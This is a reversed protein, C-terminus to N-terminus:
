TTQHPLKKLLFLLAYMGILLCGYNLIQFVSYVNHYSSSSVVNYRVNQYLKELMDWKLLGIMCVTLVWNVSMKKFLFLFPIILVAINRFAELKNTSMLKLLGKFTISVGFMEAMQYLQYYNYCQYMVFFILTTNVTALFSKSYKKTNNKGLLILLLLLLALYSYAIDVFPM